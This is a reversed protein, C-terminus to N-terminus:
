GDTIGGESKPRKPDIDTKSDVDTKPADGANPTSDVKGKTSKPAAKKKLSNTIDKPITTKKLFAFTVQEFTFDCYLAYGGSAGADEKFVLDTIVLNNLVTRLVIGDYEYLRVLQINPEDMGTKENYKKGQMLGVLLDRVNEMLDDRAPDVLVEPTSEPIFQGISNPLFKLLGQDTSNITIPTPQPESNYPKNERVDGVAYAEVSIDAGSIVASIKFVPNSRIFHDTISGGTAIPHKTVQGKHNQTYMTVADLYIFGGDDAPDVGWRIAISM